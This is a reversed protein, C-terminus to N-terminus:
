TISILQLEFKVCGVPHMYNTVHSANPKRITTFM